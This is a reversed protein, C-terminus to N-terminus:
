DIFLPIPESVIDGGTTHATIRYYVQGQYINQVDSCMNIRKNDSPFNMKVTWNSYIDGPDEYTSEITFSTVASAENITWQLKVGRGQKHLHLNQFAPTLSSSAKAALLEPKLPNPTAAVSAIVCLLLLFNKM